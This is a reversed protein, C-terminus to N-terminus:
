GHFKTACFAEWFDAKPLSCSAPLPGPLSAMENEKKVSPLRRISLPLGQIFGQKSKKHRRRSRWKKREVLGNLISKLLDILKGKSCGAAGALRSLDIQCGRWNVGRSAGTVIRVIHAARAAMANVALISVDPDATRRQQTAAGIAVRRHGDAQPQPQGITPTARGADVQTLLLQRGGM